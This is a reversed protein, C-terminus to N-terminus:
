VCPSPLCENDECVFNEPGHECSTPISSAYSASVSSDPPGGPLGSLYEAMPIRCEIHWTEPLYPTFGHEWMHEVLWVYLKTKKQEDITKRDPSLGGCQLDIALGTQHASQFARWKHGEAVSGYQKVMDAEYAEKSPWLCPRWGSAALLHLGIAAYVAADMVVFKSAVVAHVRQQVHGPATAIPVLLSSDGPLSGFESVYVRNPVYPM